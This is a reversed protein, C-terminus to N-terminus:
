LDKGYFLSKPANAYYGFGPVERYGCSEYLAVAEPQETGTNLIVSRAGAEAASAELTALMVRSLGRRRARPVVYMRKIEAVSETERRWGGMAVAVGDLRGLLFLGSPPAFEEPQVPTADGSGYRAMYELQVEAVLRAVDADTYDRVEVVFSV